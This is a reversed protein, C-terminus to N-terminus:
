QLRQAIEAYKAKADIRNTVALKGYINNIHTKVTSIEVFLMRAIEKNAKGSAILELIELEKGTLRYDRKQQLLNGNLSTREKAIWVGAVLSFIAVISLYYDLKIQRYLVYLNMAEFLIVAGGTMAGFKLILRYRIIIQRMSMDNLNTATIAFNITSKSRMNM